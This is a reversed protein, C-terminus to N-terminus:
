KALSIHHNLITDEEREYRRKYAVIKMVGNQEPPKQLHHQGLGLRWFPLHCNKDHICGADRATGLRAPAVIKAVM